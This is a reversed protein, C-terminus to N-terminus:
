YSDPPVCQCWTLNRTNYTMLFTRQHEVLPHYEMALPQTIVQRYVIPMMTPLRCCNLVIVKLTLGLISPMSGMLRHLTQWPHQMTTSQSDVDRANLRALHFSEKQQSPGKQGLNRLHLIMCLWQSGLLIFYPLNKSGGFNRDYQSTQSFLNKFYSFSWESHCMKKQSFEVAAMLVCHGTLNLRGTQSNSNIIFIMTTILPNSNWQKTPTALCYLNTFTFDAYLGHWGMLGSSIRTEM